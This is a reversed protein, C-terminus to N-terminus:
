KIFITNGRKGKTHLKFQHLYYIKLEVDKLHM